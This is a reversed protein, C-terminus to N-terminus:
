NYVSYSYQIIKDEYKINENGTLYTNFDCLDYYQTSIGNSYSEAGMADPLEIRIYFDGSNDTVTTGVATAKQPTHNAEWYPNAYKSTVSYGAFGYTMGTDKDTAVVTGKVSIWSTTRFYSRTFGPYRIFFNVGENGNYESIIIKEPKLVPVISLTYNQIDGDNYNEASKFNKVRIYYKGTSVSLKGTSNSATLKKM